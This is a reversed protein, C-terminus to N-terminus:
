LLKELTKPNSSYAYANEVTIEGRRVLDVLCRNMDIMGIQSSTEIITNIEHIRKERILNAVASNNLLLEYAPVLGGSVRPVLRQSFIGMLSGALQLRIQGQQNPPFSDIVREITQAANNTHLTSFVLHGTEAATVAAAMTDLGRIEGIMIVDVDERFASILATHFDKLDIRVERQDIVSKKNEFMYEIPDEITIIHELRDQNIMEILSALTTTKGQGVPGVVLFFGQQKKTFTELIPPLSLQELTKIQKPILRLAIALNGRQFYSNGRFRAIDEFAYSFDLEKTKVFLEKQEATVMADLFGEVDNEKLVPKKLLPIVFGNVRIIPNRGAALHLDSANEKVVMMILDALERKYDM